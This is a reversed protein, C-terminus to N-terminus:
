KRLPIISSFSVVFSVLPNVEELAFNVGKPTNMLAHTHTHTDRHTHRHTHSLFIKSVKGRSKLIFFM